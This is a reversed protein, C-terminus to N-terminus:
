ADSSVMSLGEAECGIKGRMEIHAADRSAALFCLLETSAQIEATGGGRRKGERYMHWPTRNRKVNIITAIVRITYNKENLFLEQEHLM